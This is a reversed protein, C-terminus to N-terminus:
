AATGDTPHVTRLKGDADLDSERIMRSSTTDAFRALSTSPIPLFQTRVITNGDNWWGEGHRGARTLNENDPDAPSTQHMMQDVLTDLVPMDTFKLAGEANAKVKQRLAAKREVQSYNEDFHEASQSAFIGINADKRATNNPARILLEVVDENGKLFRIEDGFYVCTGRIQKFRYATMRAITGYVAASWRNLDSAADPNKGLYVPLGSTRFVTAYPMEGSEMRSSLEALNDFPPLGPDGADRPPADIFARTYPLSAWHNFHRFLTKAERDGSTSLWDILRRTSTINRAARFDPRLINALYAGEDCRPDFKFLALYHALFVVEAEPSALCKLIDMSWQGSAANVIQTRAIQRAFVAWEGHDSHDVVTSYRNLACVFLFILKMAASKGSGQAGTFIISANGRDTAHLLDVLIIQGNANEKNIALPMGTGDGAYSRRIPMAGSFLRATSQQMLDDGTRTRRSGPVTMAWLEKQRGVPITPRYGKGRFKAMMAAVRSNLEDINNHGFAFITAIQMGRPSPEGRLAEHYRRLEARRTDYDFAEFENEANAAGESVLDAETQALTEIEVDSQSFKIRLTFDADVGIAQDVVYTFDSVDKVFRSPYRAIGVMTQYSVAGDPLAATRGGPLASSGSPHAIALVKGHKLTRFRGFLARMRQAGTLKKAYDRGRDLDDVFTSFLATAEAADDFAVDPYAQETPTVAPPGNSPEPRVPVTLGRTTARDFAWDVLEPTTRVPRFEAPISAFCIKEFEDLDSWDVGELPNTEVITSVLRDPMSRRSPKSIQLWYLRDFQAFEGQVCRRHFDNLLSELYRYKNPDWDPIGATIRRYTDMPDVLVRSAHLAIDSTPLQSLAVYLLEHSDQAARATMPRYSNVNIGTLLYNCWVSGDEGVILNRDRKTLPPVHTGM